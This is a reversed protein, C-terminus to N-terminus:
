PQAYAPTSPTPPEYDQGYKNKHAVRSTIENLQITGLSSTNEAITIERAQHKLDDPLSAESWVRLVYRGPPVGSLQLDGRRNSIAYYPTEIAIVVASMEPHINCFIYSIGPRDFRVDRTTGAEYLGLDFRKGEFLSFVNHFFPDRNPFEVSSGVRVVVVHPEFHKNHQVLRPHSAPPLAAPDPSTSNLPTLWIVVNSADPPTKTKALNHFAVHATLNINQASMNVTMLVLCVAVIGALSLSCLQFRPRPM